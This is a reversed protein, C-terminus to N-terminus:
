FRRSPNGIHIHAGTSSGPVVGRFAIFPIGAQRLFRLLARGEISDPHLAVDIADSHDFRLRDHMPTQGLASIPLARGFAEGFFQELRGVKRLNWPTGGNFRVLRSTEAYGGTRLGPLRGLEDRMTVEAIALDTELLWGEDENIQLVIANLAREVQLIETRPILGQQYLDSRNQYEALLRDREAKRLELLKEAGARSEKIREILDKRSRELNTERAKVGGRTRSGNPTYERHQAYSVDLWFLLAILIVTIAM